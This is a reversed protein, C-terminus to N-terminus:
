ESDPHNGIGRRTKEGSSTDTEPHPNRGEHGWPRIEKATFGNKSSKEGFIKVEQGSRLDAPQRIITGPSVAVDWPTGSFDRISLSDDSIADIEGGLFGKDPRSWVAERREERSEYSPFLYKMDGDVQEGAHFFSLAGGFFIIVLTSVLTISIPSFRYGGETKRMGFFALVGFVALAGVWFLPLFRFGHMVPQTHVFAPIDRDADWLFAMAVSFAVSAFFVGAAFLAWRAVKKAVYHWRPEPVIHEERILGVIKKSEENM